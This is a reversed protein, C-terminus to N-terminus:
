EPSKKHREDMKETQEDSNDITFLLSPTNNFFIHNM